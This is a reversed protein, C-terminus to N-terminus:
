LWDDPLEDSSNQLSELVPQIEDFRPGKMVWQIEEWRISGSEELRPLHYQYCELKINEITKEGAHIAEPVSIKEGQPNQDLLTILLRRRYVNALVEFIEDM